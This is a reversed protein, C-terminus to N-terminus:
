DYRVPEIKTGGSWAIASRRERDHEDWSKDDPAERRKVLTLQRHRRKPTRMRIMAETADQEKAARDQDYTM